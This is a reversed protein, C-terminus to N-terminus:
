DTALTERLLTEEEVRGETKLFGVRRLIGFDLERVMLRGAASLLPPTWEPSVLGRV